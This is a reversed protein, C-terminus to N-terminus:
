NMKIREKMYSYIDTPNKLRQSSNTYRVYFFEEDSSSKFRDKFAIPEVSQKVRIRIVFLDNIIIPIIEVFPLISLGFSNKIYSELKLILQDQKNGKQILDMDARLGIIEGPDSVGVLLDGGKSNLFAGITKLIEHILERNEVERKIDWQISSKFEVSFGEGKKILENLVIIEESPADKLDKSSNENQLLDIVFARKDITSERKFFFKSESLVKYLYSPEVDEVLAVRTLLEKTVLPGSKMLINRAISEVKKFKTNTSNNFEDINDNEAWYVAGNINKKTFEKLNNLRQYINEYPISYQQSHKWLEFLEKTTKPTDLWSRITDTFQQIEHNRNKKKIVSSGHIKEWEKLIVMGNELYEIEIGQMMSLITRFSAEPYNSRELSKEQLITKSLPKGEMQLVKIIISKLSDSELNWSTLAWEGTKGRSYLSKNSIRIKATVGPSPVPLNYQSLRKVIERRIELFHTPKGLEFLIRQFEAEYNNIDYFAIMCTQNSKIVNPMENLVCEVDSRTLNSKPIQKLSNLIVETKEVPEPNDRLIRTTTEIIKLVAENNKINGVIILVNEIRTKYRVFGFGYCKLLVTIIETNITDKEGAECRAVIFDIISRESFVIKKKAESIIEQLLKQNKMTLAYEGNGLYLGRRINGYILSEKQRVREKSLNLLVGIERLTYREDKVRYKYIADVLKSSNMSNLLGNITRGLDILLNPSDTVNESVEPHQNNLTKVREIFQKLVSESKIGFSKDHILKEKNSILDSITFIKYKRLKNILIGPTDLIGDWEFERMFGFNDANETHVSQIYCKLEKLCTKGFGDSSTLINQKDILDKLTFIKLIRFKEVLISPVLSFDLEHYLSM